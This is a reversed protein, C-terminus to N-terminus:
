WPAKATPRIPNGAAAVLKRCRACFDRERDVTAVKGVADEM